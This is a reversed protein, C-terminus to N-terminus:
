FHSDRWTGDLGLYIDFLPGQLIDVEYRALSFYSFLRSRLWDCNLRKKVALITADSIAKM